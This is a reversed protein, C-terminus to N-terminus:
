ATQRHVGAPAWACTRHPTEDRYRWGKALVYGMALLWCFMSPLIFREEFHTLIHSILSYLHPSVLLLILGARSWEKVFMIIVCVSCAFTFLAIPMFQWNALIAEKWHLMYFQERHLGSQMRAEFFTAKNPNDYGWWFPTALKRMYLDADNGWPYSIGADKTQQVRGDDGYKYGWPNDFEALGTVLAPGVGTSTFVWRDMVLHNHYAWPLLVLFAIIQVVTMAGVSRWFRHTYAWVGCTIFVPALLYDPRLYSGLGVSLGGVLLWGVARWGRSWTARLTCALFTVIFFSLLGCPIKCISTYALPPFIAFILGGIFGTKWGLCSRGIWFTIGAALTDLLIGLIQVPVDARMGLIRNIGAVVLSLGPPRLAYTIADTLPEVVEPTFRINRVKIREFLEETKPDDVYGYGAAIGYGGCFYSTSMGELFKATYGSWNCLMFFIRVIAATSIVIALHKRLSPISRQTDSM